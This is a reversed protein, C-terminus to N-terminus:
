GIEATAQEILGVSAAGVALGCGSTAAHSKHEHGCSCARDAPKTSDERTLWVKGATV